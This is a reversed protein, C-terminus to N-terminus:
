SILFTSWYTLLEIVKNIYDFIDAVAYETIGIMTYTKGSSTQGYAFISASLICLSIKKDYHFTLWLFSAPIM